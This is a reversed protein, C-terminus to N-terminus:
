CSEKDAVKLKAISLDTSRRMRMEQTSHLLDLLLDLDDLLLLRLYYVREGSTMLILIYMVCPMTRTVLTNYIVYISKMVTILM